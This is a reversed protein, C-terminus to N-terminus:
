KFKLEISKREKKTMRNLEGHSYWVVKDGNLKILQQRNIFISKGGDEDKFEEKWCKFRRVNGRKDIETKYTVKRKKM